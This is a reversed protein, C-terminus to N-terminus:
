DSTLSGSVSSHMNVSFKGCIVAADTDHSNCLDNLLGLPRLVCDLLRSESGTCESGTLEVYVPGKGPGYVEAGNRIATGGIINVFTKFNLHM